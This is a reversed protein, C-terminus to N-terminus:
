NVVSLLPLLVTFEAGEGPMGQATISGGHRQTIRRCLALGLGTGEYKDRSHLRTFNRFIHEADGADFGIGNDRLVIRAFERGDEDLRSYSVHIIPEVGNKAFKISNNVLNYFLQYLLVSSGQLEPLLDARLMAKKELMLVELDSEITKMVVNLDVKDQLQDNESSLMSHSLVGDIMAYLRETASMIKELFMTGKEPLLHQFEDQIRGGFTKIKRM